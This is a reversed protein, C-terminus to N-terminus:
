EKFVKSCKQSRQAQTCAYDRSLETMGFATHIVACITQLRAHEGVIQVLRPESKLLKIHTSYYDAMHRAYPHISLYGEECANSNIAFSMCACARTRLGCPDYSWRIYQLCM